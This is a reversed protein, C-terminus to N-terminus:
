DRYVMTSVERQIPNRVQDSVIAFRVRQDGASQALASVRFVAHGQPAITVIPDFVVTQKGLTHRMPGQASKPTMGPPFQVQLQVNRDASSGRNQVHIEYSVERGLYAPNDRDIVKLTLDAMGELQIVGTSTQEAIGDAKATVVNSFQGTKLGHVRVQLIQTQGDALEKLTWFATRSTAQYLGRESAAIFDVGDALRNVVSVNRLTRGSHNAVEYRLDGDRGPLLKVSPAQRVSLPEAAVAATIDITGSDVAEIGNSTAVKVRV